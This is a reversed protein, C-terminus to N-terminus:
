PLVSRIAALILTVEQNRRQAASGEASFRRGRITLHIEESFQWDSLPDHWDVGHERRVDITVTPSVTARTRGLRRKSM